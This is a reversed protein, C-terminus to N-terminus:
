RFRIDKIVNTGIADNVKRIIERRQLTLEARWPASAVGVYLIGSEVRQPKTVRAIQEGVIVEWETLVAYRRLTADIGLAVAFEELAQAVAVPQKKAKTGKRTSRRARAANM